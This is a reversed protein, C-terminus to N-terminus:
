ILCQYTEVPSIPYGLRAPHSGGSANLPLTRDQVRRDHQEQDLVADGVARDIRQEPQRQHQHERDGADDQNRL